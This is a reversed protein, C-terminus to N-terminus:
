INYVADLFNLIIEFIKDKDTLETVSYETVQNLKNGFSITSKVNGSFEDGEFKILPYNESNNLFPANRRQNHVFLQVMVFFRSDSSEYPHDSFIMLSDNVKNEIENNITMVVEKLYLYAFQDFYDYFYSVKDLNRSREILLQNLRERNKDIM